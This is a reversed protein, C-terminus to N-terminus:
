GTRIVGCMTERGPLSGYRVMSIGPVYSDKAIVGTKTMSDPEGWADLSYSEEYGGHTGENQSIHRAVGTAFKTSYVQQIVTRIEKNVISGGPKSGNNLYNTIITINFDYKGKESENKAKDPDDTSNYADEKPNIKLSNNDLAIDEYAKKKGSLTVVTQNAYEVLSM